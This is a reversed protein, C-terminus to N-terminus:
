RLGGSYLQREKRVEEAGYPQSAPDFSKWGSKQWAASRDRLNVASENLLNIMLAAGPTTNGEDDITAVIELTTTGEDLALVRPVPDFRMTLPKLSLDVPLETQTADVHGAGAFALRAVFRDRALALRVCFRGGEDTKLALTDARELTPQATPGRAGECATAVGGSALEIPRQNEGRPSVTVTIKEGGVARAGDDM